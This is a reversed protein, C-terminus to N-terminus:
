GPIVGILVLTGAAVLVAGLVRGLWPGGPVVKELLIYVAIGIVWWLNMVGGIFLLGMLLWCCGVCYAGHEVGMALAGGWGPRWRTLIFQLPSRCNRLCAQKLPTFQYAGCALLLTANAWPSSLGEAMVAEVHMEIWWQLGAAGLAFIGWVALYAAALAAAPMYPRGQAKERQSMTAFLLIMPAASPLMMAVMMIWWMAFLPLLHPQMPMGMGMGANHWLWGWALAVAALLCVAVVARDSKLVSRLM